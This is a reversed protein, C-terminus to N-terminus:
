SCISKPHLFTSMAYSPITAAVSKILVLWSAQSLTKACWGEVKFKVKEVINLFISRKSNGFLTPLGLYISRSPFSSFPLIDLILATVVWPFTSAM